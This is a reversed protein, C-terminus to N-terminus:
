TAADDFRGIGAVLLRNEGIVEVGLSRSGGADRGRDGLNLLRDAPGTLVAQGDGGLRGAMPRDAQRGEVIRQQDPRHDVGLRNDVRFLPDGPDSGSGGPIGHDVGGGFVAEGRHVARGGRDSHDAVRDTAPEAEVAALVPKGAVLNPRDFHYGALALHGPDVGVM